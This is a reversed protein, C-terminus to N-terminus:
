KIVVKNIYKDIKILYFGQPLNIACNEERILKELIKKGSIDFISVTNGTAGNIQIINDIVTVLTNVPNQQINIPDIAAVIVPNSYASEGKDYVATVKYTYTQKPTIDGDEYIDKTYPNANLKEGDRYINYGILDYTVSSNDPTYTIDDIGLAYDGVYTCHIAFYKADEPLTYEYLKWTDSNVSEKESLPTFSDIETDTTSYCFYFEESSYYRVMRKAYFSVKEGGAVLPSILWDDNDKSSSAPCVLMKTGEHAAYKDDTLGISPFEVIQFAMAEEMHPYDTYGIQGTKDKDIDIFEWGEPAIISFADYDEFSETFPEAASKHSLPAPTEGQPNTWSLIIKNDKFGGTLDNISPYPPLSVDVTALLTDNSLNEDKDFNICAKFTVQQGADDLVPTYPFSFETNEENALEKGSQTTIEKDGKFLSVTYENAIKTGKNKITFTFTKEKNVSMKGPVTFDVTALDYDLVDELYINDICIDYGHGAYGRFVIQINDTKVSAPLDIQQKKWGMTGKVKIPADTIKIFENDKKIEIDLADEETAYYGNSQYIYFTLRPNKTKSLDLIPSLLRCSTGLTATSSKFRAFGQDNDQSFSIYPNNNSGVLDWYPLIGSVIEVSWSRKEFKKNSFSEKFEGQYPNGILLQNSEAIKGSGSNNSPTVKYYVLDQGEGEPTTYTDTITTKDTNEAVKFGDNREITYTILKPNIPGDYAGKQPAKWTLILHDNNRTLTLDTVAAPTDYAIKSTFQAELGKGSSNVPVVRYIYTGEVINEEIYSVLSGPIINTITKILEKERYIEFDCSGLLTEGIFNTSPATFSIEASLYDNSLTSVVKLDEIQAPANSAIGAEIHIDDIYLYYADKGSLVHFGLYYNGTQPAIINAEVIQKSTSSITTVPVVTTTFSSPEMSTGLMVELTDTAYPEKAMFTLKYAMGAELYLIPSILWDDADKIKSYDYKASQTNSDWIWTSGDENNDKVTFTDFDTQLTFNQEYPPIIPETELTIGKAPLLHLIFLLAIVISQLTTRKM